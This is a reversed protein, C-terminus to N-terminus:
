KHQAVKTWVVGIVGSLFSSVYIKACQPWFAPFFTAYLVYMACCYLVLICSSWMKMQWMTGQFFSPFTNMSPTSNLLSNLSFFDLSLTSNPIWNDFQDKHRKLHRVYHLAWTLKILCCIFTHGILVVLRMAFYYSGNNLNGCM